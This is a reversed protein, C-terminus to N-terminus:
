GEESAPFFARCALAVGGLNRRSFAVTWCADAGHLIELDGALCDLNESPFDLGATPFDLRASPFDLEFGQIEKASDLRKL